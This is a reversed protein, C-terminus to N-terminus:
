RCMHEPHFMTTPPFHIHLLRWGLASLVTSSPCRHFVLSIIQFIDTISKWNENEWM